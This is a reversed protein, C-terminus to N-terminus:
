SSFDESNAPRKSLDHHVSHRATRRAEIRLVNANQPRRMASISITSESTLHLGSARGKTKLSKPTSGLTMADVLTLTIM